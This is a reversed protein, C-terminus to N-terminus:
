SNYIIGEASNNLDQIGIDALTAQCAGPQSTDRSAFEQLTLANVSITIAGGAEDRTLVIEATGQDEPVVLTQALQFEVGTM